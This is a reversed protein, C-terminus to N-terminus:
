VSRVRIVVKRSWNLREAIARAEVMAERLTPHGRHPVIESVDSQRLGDDVDRGDLLIPPTSNWDFDIRHERALSVM